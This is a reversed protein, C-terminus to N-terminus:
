EKSTKLHEKVLTAVQHPIIENLEHQQMFDDVTEMNDKLSSTETKCVIEITKPIHEVDEVYILIDNIKYEQTKRSFSFTFSKKNKLNKNIEELSSYEQPPIGIPMEFIQFNKPWQINTKHFLYFKGEKMTPWKNKKIFRAWLLDKDTDKSDFIYDTFEANGLFETKKNLFNLIKNNKMYARKCAYHYLTM